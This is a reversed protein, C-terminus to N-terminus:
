ERIRGAAAPERGLLARAERRFEEDSGSTELLLELVIRRFERRAYALYNTVQTPALRLEDGLERYSPRREPGEEEADHLDYREFVRFYAAKGQEALEARLREVGRSFISRAWEREFFEEMEPPQSLDLRSLEREASFFDLPEHPAGGGRKKRREDRKANAVLHDVCARLFTRLRGREPEYSQLLSKELLRSFFEQTLDQADEISKGWRLRIYKYVPKWYAAVLAELAREREAGDGSRAAVIASWRTAPFRGGGTEVQAKEKM